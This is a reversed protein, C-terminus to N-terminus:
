ERIGKQGYQIKLELGLTTMVQLVKDMRVTIKGTELQSVFNLSVNALNALETQSLGQSRREQRIRSALRKLAAPSLKSQNKPTKAM